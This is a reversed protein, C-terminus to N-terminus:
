PILKLGETLGIEMSDEYNDHQANEDYWGGPRKDMFQWNAYYAWGPKGDERKDFDVGVFINHKERLWKQLLSQTPADWSNKVNPLYTDEKLFAIGVELLPNISETYHFVTPENFGKQKALKALEFSILQEKM